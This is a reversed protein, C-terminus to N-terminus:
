PTEAPPPQHMRLIYDRTQEPLNASRIWTAAETPASRFWAGAISPLAAGLLSPQNLSALWEMAARPETAAWRMAASTMARDRLEGEPFRELWDAARRPHTETLADAIAVVAADRGPTQELASVWALAGDPDTRGWLRGITEAHLSADEAASLRKAWAAGSPPDMTEMRGAIGRLIATRWAPDSVEHSWAEAGPLDIGAWERAILSSAAYKLDGPLPKVWAAADAPNAAAAQTVYAMVFVHADGGLHSKEAFLRQAIEAARQPDSQALSVALRRLLEHREEVAQVTLIEELDPTASPEPEQQGLELTRASIQPLSSPPQPPLSVSTSDPGPPPTPRPDQRLLFLVAGLTLALLLVIARRNM